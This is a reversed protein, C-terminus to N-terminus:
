EVHALWEQRTIAYEVDGLEDGPIRDPWDAHFRRVERMGAKEMVRRSALHAVMTEAGLEPDDPPRLHFWGIFRGGVKEVAAWYGGAIFAPLVEREVQERPTARGGTIFFMVEPDSDLAVLEDLDAACFRRLVLRDTELM